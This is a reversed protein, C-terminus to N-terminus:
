KLRLLELRNGKISEFGTKNLKKARFVNFHLPKSPLLLNCIPNFGVSSLLMELGVEKLYLSALKTSSAELLRLEIEVVILQFPLGLVYVM